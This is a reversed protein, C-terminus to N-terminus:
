MLSLGPCHPTVLPQSILERQWWLKKYGATGVVHGLVALLEDEYNYDTKLFTYLFSYRLGIDDKMKM